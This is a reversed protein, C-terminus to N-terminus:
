KKTTFTFDGSVATLGSSTKSRVRYHFVTRSNLGSLRVSHSTVASTNVPSLTGYATTTGYEVQSDSAYNTTWTM